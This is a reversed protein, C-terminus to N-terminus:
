GAPVSPTPESAARTGARLALMAGVVAVPIGLLAVFPVGLRLVLASLLQTFVPIGTMLMPPVVLGGRALAEFYLVPALFFSTLGLALLVAVPFLSTVALGAWGGPIAPPVLVTVLSAALMSQGVVASAATEKNAIATLLFYLAVTLPVAPVALWGWDHIASLGKGGAIAMAGGVLSLLAGVAFGTTRIERRHVRLAFAVLVPTVVVDGILSLLAADVPGTLYTSALVSLQMGILLATRLYAAPSRWLRAFAAGQGALVAWLAYAIGGYLFPYVLIASPATGPTIALVFIYYTAWAFASLLSLVAATSRASAFSPM